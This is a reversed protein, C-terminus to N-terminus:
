AAWCIAWRSLSRLVKRYGVPVRRRAGRRGVPNNTLRVVTPMTVCVRRAARLFRGEDAVM